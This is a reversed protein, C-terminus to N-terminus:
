GNITFPKGGGAAMSPLNDGPLRIHSLDPTPM